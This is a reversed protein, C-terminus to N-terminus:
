YVDRGGKKLKIERSCYKPESGTFDPEHLTLIGDDILHILEYSGIILEEVKEVEGYKRYRGYVAIDRYPLGTENAMISDMKRKGLIGM